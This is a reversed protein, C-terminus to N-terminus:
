DKFKGSVAILNLVLGFINIGIALAWALFSQYVSLDNFFNVIHKYIGGYGYVIISVAMLVRYITLKRMFGPILFLGFVTMSLGGTFPDTTSLRPRGAAVEFWSVVNYGVGLLCYVIQCILLSKLKM